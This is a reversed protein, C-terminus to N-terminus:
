AKLWEGNILPWFFTYHAMFGTLKVAISRRKGVGVSYACRSNGRLHPYHELIREYRSKRMLIM